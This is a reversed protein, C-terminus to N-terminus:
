ETVAGEGDWDRPEGWFPLPLGEGLRWLLGDLSGLHLLPLHVHLSGQGECQWTSLGLLVHCASRRVRSLPVLVLPTPTNASFGQGRAWLKPGPNPEGGPGQLVAGSGM